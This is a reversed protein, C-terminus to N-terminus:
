FARKRALVDNLQASGLEDTRGRIEITAATRAKLAVADLTRRAPPTLSAAGSAFTITVTSSGAELPADGADAPIWTDTSAPLSAVDSPPAIPDTATDADSIRAVRALTKITPKPCADEVCTRFAAGTGTPLQAISGPMLRPRSPLQTITVEPRDVGLVVCGALLLPSVALAAATMRVFGDAPNM